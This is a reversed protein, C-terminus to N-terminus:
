RVQYIGVSTNSLKGGHIGESPQKVGVLRMEDQLPAAQHGPVLSLCLIQDEDARSSLVWGEVGQLGRPVEGDHGCRFRGTNHIMVRASALWCDVRARLM